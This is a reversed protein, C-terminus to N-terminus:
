VGMRNIITDLMQNIENVFRAAANYGKQFKILESFEEDMSVGSISSRYDMLEKMIEGQVQDMQRAQDARSAISGVVDSFYDKFTTKSGVMTIKTRLSAIELAASGDGPLAGRGNGGFGTAIKSPDARLEPSVAMWGAPDALPAVAYEVGQLGLVADAQEWNYANDPGSGSLLGTYDTLFQGSDEIYRLVFDPNEPDAADQAKLSLRGERDLFAQVEAGSNNIRAVIDAVRDTPSYDISINERPGNLLITGALGVQQEPDLANNGRLRFIYSSDFEGDGTRDYNGQANNVFPYESFFDVGTTGNAAFANRHVENVMDTFNVALLNLKQIEGRIESDRLEILGALKGNDIEIPSGDREWLINYFSNNQPDAQLSLSSVVRGQILYMGRTHLQFEDPDRNDVTVNMYGSLEEVLLDRSDMLDNPQDGVAQSKVIQENLSSIEQLISNVRDVSLKVDENVIKQIEKLQRYQGNISDMLAEGRNLVVQRGALEEPMAALEQWSSWFADMMDRLSTGNPELYVQEVMGLYNQRVSWYGSEDGQAIIRNDFLTDRIREVITVDVGQGIQGPREARNLQPKYLPDSTGLRVRQRSYGETNANAMNHGITQLGQSHAGLSRKGLEIGSFTSM